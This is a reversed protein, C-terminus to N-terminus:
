TFLRAIDDFKLSTLANTFMLAQPEMGNPLALAHAKSSAGPKYDFLIDTLVDKIDGMTVVWFCSILLIERYLSKM